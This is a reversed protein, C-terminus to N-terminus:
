IFILRLQYGTKHDCWFNSKTKWQCHEPVERKEQDKESEHAGCTVRFEM